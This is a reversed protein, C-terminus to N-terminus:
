AHKRRYAKISLPISVLYTAISLVIFVAATMEAGSGGAAIVDSNEISKALLGGALIITFIATMMILRGKETGFRFSILLMIGQMFLGACLTGLALAPLESPDIGAVGAIQLPLTLMSLALAGLMLLLGLVYKSLVLQTMTYPMAAALQDWKCREDYALATLPLMGAMIIAAGTTSFGPMLSFAVIIILYTFFQKTLTLVDKIILGRM